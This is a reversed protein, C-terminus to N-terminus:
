ICSTPPVHLHICYRYGGSKRIRRLSPTGHRHVPLRFQTPPTCTSPSLPCSLPCPNCEFLSVSRANVQCAILSLAAQVVEAVHQSQGSPAPSCIDDVYASFPIGRHDLVRLLIEFVVVFLFCSLPCGQKVGHTTRFM